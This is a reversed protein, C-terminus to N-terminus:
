KAQNPKQLHPYIHAKKLEKLMLTNKELSGKALDFKDVVTQANFGQTEFYKIIANFDNIVTKARERGEIAEIFADFAHYGATHIGAQQSKVIADGTSTPAEAAGFLQHSVLSIISLSFLIYTKPM